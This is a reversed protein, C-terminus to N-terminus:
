DAYSCYYDAFTKVVARYKSDAPVDFADGEKYLKPETEGPLTVEMEGSLIEM